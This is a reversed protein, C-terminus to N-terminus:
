LLETLKTEETPGEASDVSARRRRRVEQEDTEPDEDEEAVPETPATPEDSPPAYSTGAPSEAEAGRGEGAAPDLVRHEAVAHAGAGRRVTVETSGIEEPLNLDAAGPGDVVARLGTALEEVNAIVEQRKGILDELEAEADRKLEAAQQEARALRADADRITLRAHEDAEARAEAAERAATEAATRAEEDARERVDAAYADAAARTEAVYADALARQETSDREADARLRAAEGQAEASIRDASEQAASLITGTREGVRGMERQVVAARAQDAGGTELWDALEALYGDVAQPSYGGRREVPFTANRLQEIFDTAM